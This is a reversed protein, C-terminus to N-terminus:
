PLAVRLLDQAAAFLRRYGDAYRAGSFYNRAFARAREGMSDLDPSTYVKLLATELADVDDPPILYGTVGDEVVEPIGSVRSAVVPLGGLMAEIVVRPLGESQSDLVLARARAMYRALEDRDVGGVFTVRDTLGLDKAKAQMQAAYAANEPKGVLWLHADPFRPAIRAFADLLIHIGKRPILVAACLLDCSASPPATREVATFADADVWTMFQEVPRGPCWQELQMKSTASVARLLDAHRLAFRAAARMVRRYLGKFTVQRQQFLMVEFDGHNEVLLVIRRGFLRATGKVLAAIAGEYPSQAVLLRLDHRLALWLALGYGLVAMELYRLASGPLEPLLYFRAGESFRHFRCDTAFSISYARIPLEGALLRWKRASTANLPQSYRTGGLWCVGLLHDSM